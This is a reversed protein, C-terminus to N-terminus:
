QSWVALISLAVAFVSIALSVMAVAYAKHNTIIEWEDHLIRRAKTM